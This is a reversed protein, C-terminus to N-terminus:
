AANTVSLSAAVVSSDLVSSAAHSQLQKQLERGFRYLRMLGGDVARPWINFVIMEPEEDIRISLWFPPAPFPTGNTRWAPIRRHVVVGTIRPWAYQQVKGGNEYTIGWQQISMLPKANLWEEFHHGWMHALSCLACPNIRIKIAVAAGVAWFLKAAIAGVVITPVYAFKM